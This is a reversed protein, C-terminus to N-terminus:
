MGLTRTVIFDPRVVQSRNRSAMTAAPAIV